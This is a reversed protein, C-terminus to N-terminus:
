RFHRRMRQRMSPSAARDATRDRVRFRDPSVRQACRAEGPVELDHLINSVREEFIGIFDTHCDDTNSGSAHYREAIREFCRSERYVLRIFMRRTSKRKQDKRKNKEHAWKPAGLRSFRAQSSETAELEAPHGDHM